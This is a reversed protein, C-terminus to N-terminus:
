ALTPSVEHRALWRTFVDKLHGGFRGVTHGRRAYRTHTNSRLRSLLTGLGIFLLLIGVFIGAFAEVSLTTVTRWFANVHLLTSALAGNTQCVTGTTRIFVCDRDAHANGHIMMVFGFATLAIFSALVFFVLGRKM